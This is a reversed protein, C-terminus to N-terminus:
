DGNWDNLPFRHEVTDGKYIAVIKPEHCDKCHTRRKHGIFEGGCSLCIRLYNGNEHSFDEPWDATKRNKTRWRIASFNARFKRGNTPRPKSGKGNM